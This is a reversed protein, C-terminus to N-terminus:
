GMMDFSIILAQLYSLSLQEHYIFQYSDGGLPTFTIHVTYFVHSNGELSSTFGTRTM